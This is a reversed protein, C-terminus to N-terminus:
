VSASLPSCIGMPLHYTFSLYDTDLVDIPIAIHQANFYWTELWLCAEAVFYHPTNRRPNGGRAVFQKRVIRELEARREIDLLVLHRLYIGERQIDSMVKKAEQVPLASISQLPNTLQEFYYYLLM